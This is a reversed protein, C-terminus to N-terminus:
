RPWPSSAVLIAKTRARSVAVNLRKPSCLFSAVSQVYAPASACLSVVVLEVTLGQVREVTDIIPLRSGAPLRSQVASRILAAQRRFPTVVAVADHSLGAMLCTHIINAVFRAEAINMQQADGPSSRVWVFSADASLARAIPASPAHATLDIAFRRSTADTSPRLASAYFVGGIVSCLERNLRSVASIKRSIDAM